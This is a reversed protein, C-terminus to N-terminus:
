DADPDGGLERIREKLRENERERIEVVRWAEDTLERATDDRDYEDGLQSLGLQLRESKALLEQVQEESTELAAKLSDYADQLEVRGETLLREIVNYVWVEFRPNLWAAMKLAIRRHVWTGQDLATNGARVGKESQILVSIPIGMDDALEQIYAKSGKLRTFDAPFREYRKCMETANWYGDSPRITIQQGEFIKVIADKM